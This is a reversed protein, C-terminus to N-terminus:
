RQIVSSIIKVAEKGEKIPFLPYDHNMKEKEVYIIDKGEEICRQYFLRVDALFLEHTGVFLTIPALKAVPGFLPSVRPDTLPVDKAWAKGMVRLHNSNLMPDLEEIEAITPNSLAIDLWPSISIIEKPQESVGQAVSLALSAGASDGMLIFPLISENKIHDYLNIMMPYVESISHVPAKPYLPMIVKIAIENMLSEIFIYHVISAHEIYAGGHLYLITAQSEGKKPTFVICEVGEIIAKAVSSKLLPVKPITYEQENKVSLKELLDKSYEPSFIEIRKERLRLIKESVYSTTSRKEKEKIYLSFLALLVIVIITGIV